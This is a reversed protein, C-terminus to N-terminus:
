DLSRAVQELLALADELGGEISAKVHADREEKTAREVLVALTTRMGAEAFTITNLAEAERAAESIETVVIREGPVVERFEGHFAVEVGDDTMMAFRWTGGTRPDIEAVTMEGKGATWWRKILAPTTWAKWVLDRPADLERVLLAQQEGPLTVTVTNGNTVTV